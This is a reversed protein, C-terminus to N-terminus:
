HITCEGIATELFDFACFQTFTIFDFDCASASTYEYMNIYEYICNMLRLSCCWSLGDVDIQWRDYFSKVHCHGGRLSSLFEAHSDFAIRLYVIMRFDFSRAFSRRRTLSGVDLRQRIGVFRTDASQFGFLRWGGRGNSMVDCSRHERHFEHEFSSTWLWVSRRCAFTFLTDCSPRSIRPLGRGFRKATIVVYMTCSFVCVCVNSSRLDLMKLLM